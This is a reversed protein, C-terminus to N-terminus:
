LLKCLILRFFKMDNQLGYIMFEFVYHLM